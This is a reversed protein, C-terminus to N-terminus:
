TPLRELSQSDVSSRTYSYVRHSVASSSRPIKPILQPGSPTLSTSSSTTVNANRRPALTPSSFSIRRRAPAIRLMLELSVFQFPPSFSASPIHRTSVPAVSACSAKCLTSPGPANRLRRSACLHMDLPVDLELSWACTPSTSRTSTSEAWRTAPFTTWPSTSSM